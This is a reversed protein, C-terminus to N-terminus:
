RIFSYIIIVAVQQNSRNIYKSMLTSCYATASGKHNIIQLPSLSLFSLLPPLLSSVILKNLNQFANITEDFELNFSLESISSDKLFHKVAESISVIAVV